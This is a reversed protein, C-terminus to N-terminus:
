TNRMLAAYTQSNVILQIDGNNVYYGMNNPCAPDAFIRPVSITKISMAIKRRLNREKVTM